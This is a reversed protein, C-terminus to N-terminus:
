LFWNLSLFLSKFDLGKKHYYDFYHPIVETDTQSVFEYGQKELMERLEQFNEIIGNHVAVISKDKNFHPHANTKTIFGHTGWRSHALGITGKLNEFHIRNNVEDVAGVGKKIAIDGKNWSAMGVSDYGRYELRKIGKLLIEGVKEKGIVGFIGCM